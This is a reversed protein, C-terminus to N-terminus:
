PDSSAAEWKAPDRAKWLECVAAFRCANPTVADPNVELVHLLQEPMLDIDYLLSLLDPESNVLQEYRRAVDEVM